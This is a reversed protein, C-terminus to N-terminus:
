GIRDAEQRGGNEDEGDDGNGSDDGDEGGDGHESSEEDEDGSHGVVEADEGDLAVEIGAGPEEPSGRKERGVAKGPPEGRRGKTDEQNGDRQIDERDGESDGGDSGPSDRVPDSEEVAVAGATTPNQQNTEPPQPGTKAAKSDAIGSGLVTVGVGTVLLAVGFGALVTQFREM